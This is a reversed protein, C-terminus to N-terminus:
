LLDQQKCMQSLKNGNTVKKLILHSKMHGTDCM